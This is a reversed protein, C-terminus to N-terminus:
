ARNSTNKDPKMYYFIQSIFSNKSLVVMIISYFSLEIIMVMILTVWWYLEMHIIKRLITVIRWGVFYCIRADLYHIGLVFLSNIGFWNLFKSVVLKDIGGCVCIIVYFAAVAGIFDVIGNKYYNNFMYCKGFLICYIWLSVSTFFLFINVVDFKIKTFINHKRMLYGIYIFGSANMGNQISFPLWMYKSSMVGVLVIITVYIAAGKKDKLLFIILSGWFMALLFWIMGAEEQMSILQGKTNIYWSGEANGSGYFIVYINKLLSKSAIICNKYKIFIRLSEGIAYLFGIFFYPVLLRKVRSEIFPKLPKYRIGLFFGGLIFFLPMHFSYFVNYLVHEQGLFFECYHGAVVSIIALGKAIDLYGIRKRKSMREGLKGM